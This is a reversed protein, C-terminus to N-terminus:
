IKAPCMEPHHKQFYRWFSKERMHKGYKAELRLADRMDMVAICKGLKTTRGDHLNQAVWRANADREEATAREQAYEQEVVDAIALNIESRTPVKDEFKILM